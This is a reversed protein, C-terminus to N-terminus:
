CTQSILMIPSIISASWDKCEGWEVFAPGNINDCPWMLFEAYCGVCVGRGSLRWRERLPHRWSSEESGSLICLSDSLHELYAPKFDEILHINHPLFFFLLFLSLLSFHLPTPPKQPQTIIIIIPSYPPPKQHPLTLPHPPSPAPFQSIFQLNCEM